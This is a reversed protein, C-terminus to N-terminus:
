ALLRALRPDRAWREGLVATAVWLSIAPAALGTLRAPACDDGFGLTLTWSDLDPHFETIAGHYLSVLGHGPSNCILRETTLWVRAAQTDRWRLEAQRRAAVKRRHHIVANAALAGVMVAPRGVVLFDNRHYSGDGCAYLRSYAIDAELLGDERQDLVPGHVDIHPPEIGALFARASGCAYEWWWRVPDATPAPLRHGPHPRPTPKPPAASQTRAVPLTSLPAAAGLQDDWWM